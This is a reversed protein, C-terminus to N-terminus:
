SLNWFVFSSSELQMEWISNESPLFVDGLIHDAEQWCTPGTVVWKVAQACARESHM